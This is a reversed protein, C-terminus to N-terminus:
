ANIQIKQPRSAAAKPMTVRLIGNKLVAKTNDSEVQVPLTISRQLDWSKRETMYIDNNKGHEINRKASLKLTDDHIELNIDKDEVGPLEAVFELNDGQDQLNMRYSQQPANCRYDCGNFFNFLRDFDNWLTYM